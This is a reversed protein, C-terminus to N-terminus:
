DSAQDGGDDAVRGVMIVRLWLDTASFNTLALRVAVENTVTDYNTSVTFGDRGSMNASIAPTNVFRLPSEIRVDVAGYQLTANFGTTVTPSLGTFQKVIACVAMDGIRSVM